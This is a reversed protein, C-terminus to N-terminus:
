RPFLEQLKPWVAHLNFRLRGYSFDLPNRANAARRLLIHAIFEELAEIGGQKVMEIMELLSINGLEAKLNDVLSDYGTRLTDEPYLTAMMDKTMAETISEDPMEEGATYVGAHYGEHILVHAIDSPKGM